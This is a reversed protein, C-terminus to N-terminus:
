YATIGKHSPEITQLAFPEQARIGSADVGSARRGRAPRNQHPPARGGHQSPFQRCAIKAAGRFSTAMVWDM